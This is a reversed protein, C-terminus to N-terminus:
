KCFGKELLPRGWLLIGGIGTNAPLGCASRVQSCLYMYCPRKSIGVKCQLISTLLLNFCWVQLHTNGTVIILLLRLFPRGARAVLGTRGHGEVASGMLNHAPPETHLQAQESTRGYGILSLEKRMVVGRSGKRM